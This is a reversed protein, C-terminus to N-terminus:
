ITNQSLSSDKKLLLYILELIKGRGFNNKASFFLPPFDKDAYHIWFNFNKDRQSQEAKDVKTLVPIISLCKDKLYNYLTIDTQQPPIRSDILLIIKKIFERNKEFYNDVLKAWKEREKKSAKAYGYGPLDVLYGKAKKVYYFNISKTKGPKSSIKALNKKGALSNIFSSKGVNSRGAVPIQPAEIQELQNIEYITKYLEM